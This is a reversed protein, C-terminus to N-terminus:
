MDGTHTCNYRDGKHAQFSAPLSELMPELGTKQQEQTFETSSGHVLEEIAM